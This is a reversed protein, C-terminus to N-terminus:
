LFRFDALQRTESALNKWTDSTKSKPYKFNKSKAPKRKSSGSGGVSGGGDAGGGTVEDGDAGFASAASSGTKLMATLPAVIRNDGIGGDAGGGGVAENGDAGSASAASSQSNEVHRHTTSSDQQLGPHLAPLFRCLWHFRHRTDAPLAAVHVVFAEQEPNLAAKAFAESRHDLGLPLCPRQLAICGALLNGKQLLVDANSLTLFLMGFVVEM